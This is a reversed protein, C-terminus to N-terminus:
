IAEVKWWYSWSLSGVKSDRKTWYAYLKEDLILCYYHLESFDVNEVDSQFAWDGPKLDERKCLTLKCFFSAQISDVVVYNTKKVNITLMQDFNNFLALDGVGDRVFKISDPVRIIEPKSAKRAKLLTEESVNCLPIEKGDQTAKIEIKM